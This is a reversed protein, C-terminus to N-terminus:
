AVRAIFPNRLVVKRYAKPIVGTSSSNFIFSQNIIVYDSSLCYIKNIKVNCELRKTAAFSLELFVFMILRNCDMFQLLQM